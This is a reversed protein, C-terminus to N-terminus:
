LGDEFLQYDRLLHSIKEPTDRVGLVVVSRFPYRLRGSPLAQVATVLM